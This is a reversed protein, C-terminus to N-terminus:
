ATIRHRIIQKCFCLIGTSQFLSLICIKLRVPLPPPSYFTWHNQTAFQWLNTVNVESIFRRILEKQRVQLQLLLWLWLSSNEQYTDADTKDATAIPDRFIKYHLKLLVDFSMVKRCTKSALIYRLLAIDNQLHIKNIRSLDPHIIRMKCLPFSLYLSTLHSAWPWLPFTHLALFIKQIGLWHKILWVMSGRWWVGMRLIPTKLTKCPISCVKTFIAKHVVEAKNMTACWVKWCSCMHFLLILLINSM